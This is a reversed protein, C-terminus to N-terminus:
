RLRGQWTLSVAQAVNVQELRNFSETAWSPALEDTVQSCKSTKAHLVNDLSKTMFIVEMSRQCQEVRDDKLALSFVM